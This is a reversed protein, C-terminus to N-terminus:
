GARGLRARVPGADPHDLQDLMELAQEWTREAAGLNEGAALTDGLRVLSDAEQYRHGLAHWLARARLYSEAAEDYRGLMHQAQGLSDWANAAGFRDGIEQLVELARRCFEVAEVHRDLLTLSWGISNYARGRGSRNGAATFLRLSEESHSLADDHRDQRAAVWTLDFEIRGQGSLDGAARYLDRAVTLHAVAESPRGLHVSVRGLGRHVPAEEAPDGLRRAAPLAVQQVAVWRPWHGRRELFHALTRALRCAHRGFDEAAALSVAGVLVPVETDFWALAAEHGAIPESTVGAAAPSVPIPDRHEDLRLDAAHATCLYHDLLRGIAARRGAATDEAGALEAAYARLLDHCSYRDPASEATLSADTLERLAPRVEASPLGALSGAAAGSVEPGPHLALLRFLRAAPPSLSRYSWSFVTRVDSRQEAGSFPELGGRAACLEGALAGLTFEPNLAARAAVIALALPLRSCSAVMADAAGPEAALRAAGLRAALLERSEGATLLDLKIPRAGDLSVLGALRDRSTILTRCSGGGPLLPRVQSADRANDLVLLLRREVLLSRYLAAQAPATPPMQHPPVGLADLVARVADDRSVPVGAPDYGRLNLYLQGDRFRAAARHAWYLALATKGVGATGWVTVVPAADRGDPDILRDLEALPGARGTFDPLAPPLQGLVRGAGPRRREEVLDRATALLGQEAPTAGLLRILVDFRDTPPLVRGALYEGIIGHSWGTKAALERYTLPSAGERRAERRRLRRLVAALAAVTTVDAIERRSLESM